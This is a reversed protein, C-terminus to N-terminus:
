GLVGEGYLYQYGYIQVYTSGLANSDTYAISVSNGNVVHGLVDKNVAKNSAIADFSDVLFINGSLTLYIYGGNCTATSDCFIVIKIVEWIINSQSNTYAITHGGNTNATVTRKQLPVRSCLSQFTPLTIFAM